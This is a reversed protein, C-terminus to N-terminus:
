LRAERCLPEFHGSCLGPWRLWFAFSCRPILPRRRSTPTIFLAPYYRGMAYIALNSTLDWVCYSFFVPLTRWVRRYVLMGIVALEVLSAVLWILDDISMFTPDLGDRSRDASVLM